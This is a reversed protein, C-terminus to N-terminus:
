DEALPEVSRVHRRLSTPWVGARRRGLVDNPAVQLKLFRVHADRRTSWRERLLVLLAMLWEPLM